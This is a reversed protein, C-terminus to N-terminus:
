AAGLKGALQIGRTIIARAQTQTLGLLGLQERDLPATRGRAEAEIVPLLLDAVRVLCLEPSSPTSLECHNACVDVIENPLNWARALEAGASTHHRQVLEEVEDNTCQAGIESLIRYVRAEGIDHLLGCLYADRCRLGLEDCVVRCLHANFVSREFAERVREQFCGLGSLSAAYVVQLVLDRAGSLGVRAVADSLNKISNGRSYLASNAIALFRAAFPPDNSILGAFGAISANPDNTLQLASSAVQPLVPLAARGSELQDLLATELPSLTLVSIQPLPISEVIINM